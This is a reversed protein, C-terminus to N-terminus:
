RSQIPEILPLADDVKQTWVSLLLGRHNRGEVEEADFIVTQRPLARCFREVNGSQM